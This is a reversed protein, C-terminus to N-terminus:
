ILDSKQVRGSLYSVPSPPRYSGLQPQLTEIGNYFWASLIEEENTTLIPYSGEKFEEASFVRNITDLSSDETLQYCRYVTKNNKLNYKVYVM